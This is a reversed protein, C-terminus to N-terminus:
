KHKILEEMVEGAKLIIHPAEDKVVEITKEGFSTAIQAAGDLLDKGLDAIDDIDFM